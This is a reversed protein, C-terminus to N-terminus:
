SVLQSLPKTHMRNNSLIIKRKNNNFRRTRFLHISTEDFTIKKMEEMRRDIKNNNDGENSPRKREIQQM